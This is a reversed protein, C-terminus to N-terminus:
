LSLTSYSDSTRTTEKEIKKFNNSILYYNFDILEFEYRM